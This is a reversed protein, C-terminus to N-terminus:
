ITNEEYGLFKRPSLLGDLTIEVKREVRDLPITFTRGMFNPKASGPSDGIVSAWSKVEPISSPDIRSVTYPVDKIRKMKELWQIHLHARRIRRANSNTSKKVIRKDM